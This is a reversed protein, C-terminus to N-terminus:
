VLRETLMAVLQRAKVNVVDSLFLEPEIRQASELGRQWARKARQYAGAKYFLDGSLAHALAFDPQCYLAARLSTKASVFDEQDYYVMALLYHADVALPFACTIELLRTKAELADGKALTVAAKLVRWDARRHQVDGLLQEVQSWNDQHFATVAQQYSEQTSKIQPVVLSLREIPTAAQKKQFAITEGLHQTQFNNKVHYLTEISSLVLWGNPAVADTLAQEALQRQNSVFYMLVNRCLVLDQAESQQQMVNGQRFSVMAAIDARIKYHHSDIRSFYRQRWTADTSRFSWAKYVGQRAIEIATANIDIGTIKIDWQQVDPLVESLLIALSYVEEGTSCGVSWISLRNNHAKRRRNVMEPLIQTRLAAIQADDRMFYTEGIVLDSLLSQWIPHQNDFQKLHIIYTSLNQVDEHQMIEILRARHHESFTDLGTQEAILTSLQDLRDNAYVQM